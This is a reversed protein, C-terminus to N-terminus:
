QRERNEAIESRTLSKEHSRQFVENKLPAERGRTPPLKASFHRFSKKLLRKM